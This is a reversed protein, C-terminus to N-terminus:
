RDRFGSLVFVPFFPLPPISFDWPNMRNKANENKRTKTIKKGSRNRQDNSNRGKQIQKPNRYESKM